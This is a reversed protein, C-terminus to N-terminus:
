LCSHTNFKDPLKEADFLMVMQNKEQLRNRKCAKPKTQEKKPAQPLLKSQQDSTEKRIYSNLVILKGRPASNALNVCIKM